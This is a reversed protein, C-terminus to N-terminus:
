FHSRQISTGKHSIKISFNDFPICTQKYRKTYTQGHAFLAHFLSVNLLVSSNRSKAKSPLELLKKKEGCQFNYYLKTQYARTYLRTKKLRLLLSFPIKAFIIWRIFHNLLGKTVCHSHVIRIIFILWHYRQLARLCVSLYM